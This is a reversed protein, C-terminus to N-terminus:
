QKKESLFTDWQHCQPCHWLPVESHLGCQNCRFSTRNEIEQNLIKLAELLAEKEKKQQQLIQIMIAHGRLSDPYHNTITQCIALANDLKGQKKYLEALHIYAMANKPKKQIIQQYIAEMDGYRGLDFLVEMLRDFALHAWDPNKVTFEKWIKFADENRGERRYSDGWYLYAPICKKDLKTAERFRIRGEREAKKNIFNIGSQVKYLALINQDQKKIWKNTSQRYILAKDWDGREEYLSLLLKQNDLNRKTRHVLREAMEIARDLSGITHYDLVLHQLITAIQTDNLESRLLLNRHIKAARIPYGKDRYIDGLKIYAMINETDERVARKLNELAEDKKGDLIMHLADVYWTKGRPKKKYRRLVVILVIVIIIIFIITLLTTAM